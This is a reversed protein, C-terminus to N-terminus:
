LRGVAFVRRYPLVTGYPRSPYATRLAAGYEALFEARRADDLQELVPRAGTAVMWELVADEGALVQLYTTEWVDPHLDLRVLARLYDEPEYSHPWRVPGVRDHWRDSGALERLLVHSPEGFNAPVQFALWGSRTLMRTLEELVDLHGPVWHLTANCVLVDVAADPVWDRLDALVIEARDAVESRAREVMEPSSDVGVVRAGPWREALTATLTGPGCGLDAVFAPADAHVHALLDVFARGREGAYRLYRSPDWM